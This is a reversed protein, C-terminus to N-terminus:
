SRTLLVAVLIAIVLAAVGIVIVLAWDVPKTAAPPPPQVRRSREAILEDNAIKLNEVAWADNFVKRYIENRIRLRGQEVRVLGFLELYLQTQSRDDELVPNDAYVDRYLTLLEQREAPVTGRIRDRVFTLNPDRRAEDSFFALEVLKDIRQDDWQIKQGRLAGRNSYTAAMLCLRQTLYPHGRTWYFIRQMMADGQGACFEDLARRLPAADIYSFEQLVIRTGINFPTRSLDEMLNLPTAVGLLVFTLRQYASDNARLNYMARIAAFFDDRFSLNLTSDIEDIFITINDPIENLVVDRLFDIFLQHAGFNEHTHWFAQVDADLNLARAIRSLLGLYWESISVTGITTLDVMAARIGRDSLKRATRIMLSSKGMQRATLVYCIAGALIKNLLQQDAPRTVYSEEQADLTGGDVFVESPNRM